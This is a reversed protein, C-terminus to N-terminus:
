YESYQKELELKKGLGPTAAHPLTAPTDEDRDIYSEELTGIDGLGLATKIYSQRINKVEQQLAVAGELEQIDQEEKGGRPSSFPSDGTTKDEEFINLNEMKTMLEEAEDMQQSDMSLLNPKDYGSPISARDINM